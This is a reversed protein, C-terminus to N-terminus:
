NLIEKVMDISYTGDINRQPTRNISMIVETLNGAQLGGNSYIIRTYLNILDNMNGLVKKNDTKAFRIDAYEKLLKDVKETEIEEFALTRELGTLFIQHIKKIDDKKVGYLIFSLLTKENVFILTKRRDLYFLNVFWDGLTTNSEEVDELDGPKLGLEKQVKKTLKLQLM